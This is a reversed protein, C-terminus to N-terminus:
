WLLTRRRIFDNNVLLSGECFKIWPSGVGPPFAGKAESPRPAPGPEAAPQTRRRPSRCQPPLARGREGQCWAPTVVRLQERRCHLAFAHAFEKLLSSPSDMRQRHQGHCQWHPQSRDSGSPSPFVMPFRSTCGFASLFALACFFFLWVRKSILILEFCFQFFSPLVGYDWGVTPFPVDFPALRHDLSQQLSDACSDAFWLPSSIELV